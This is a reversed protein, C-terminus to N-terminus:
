RTFDKVLRVGAVGITGGVCFACLFMLPIQWTKGHPLVSGLIAISGIAVVVAVVVVVLTGVLRAMLTQLKYGLSRM